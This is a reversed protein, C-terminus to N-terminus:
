AVSAGVVTGPPRGNRAIREDRRRLLAEKKARKARRRRAKEQPKDCDGNVFFATDNATTDGGNRRIGTTM